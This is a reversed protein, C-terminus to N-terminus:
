GSALKLLALVGTDIAWFFAAIMMSSIIVIGLISAILCLLFLLTDARKLFARIDTLKLKM